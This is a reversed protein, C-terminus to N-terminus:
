PKYNLTKPNRFETQGYLSFGRNLKAGGDRTLPRWLFTADGPISKTFFASFPVTMYIGKDFSGEGFDEASVNTRTAFAGMRVGNNFERSFDLTVGKDGALYQGVSVTALIDEFGTDVYATVHGTNVEYDQLEFDQEFARQRVKNVDVGLAFWGNMPHYLYEGGVGAFMQELLGGYVGYYHGDALKGMHKLAMNPITFDSTVAYERLNTRVQPLRSDGRQQFKEFNDVLRYALRGEFWTNKTFNIRTDNALLFQYLFGDAGGLVQRYGLATKNTFRELPEEHVAQYPFNYGEIAVQEQAQDNLGYETRRTVFKDRDVVHQGVDVGNNEYNMTFWKINEPLDQHLVESVRDLSETYYASDGNRVNLKVESGRQEVERVQWDTQQQVRQLTQKWDVQAPRPGTTVPLPKPDSLKPTNFTSFNEFLSIAVSFTNGRELGLHFNISDSFQYVVGYNVRSSQEQPNALPENQYNNGEYELKLILDDWPTHWQVGGFLSTRGRFYTDAALEGGVGFDTVPRNDFKSSVVGLPNAFDGTNGMYGWGLGLSADFNGFRKSAVLYESAFLATGGVDNIGLAVEPIYASEKWLRLKADINKDLYKQDGSFEEPGFLRNTIKTYRFGGELWDFPQLMISYRSYPEVRSATFSASGAARMRATPTQMLGVWGWTSSSVPLDRLPAALVVDAAEAKLGPLQAAGQTALFDALQQATETSLAGGRSPALLWAGPMPVIQVQSNWVGINLEHVQGTPQVLWVTDVQKNPQWGEAQEACQDVYAPAELGPVYDIACPGTDNVVVLSAPLAPVVITDAPQLRPDLQPNLALYDADVNSLVLRGTAPLSEVFRAYAYAQRSALGDAQVDTQKQVHMSLSTLLQTRALSQQQQLEARQLVLGPLYTANNNVVSPLLGNRRLYVSLREGAQLPAAPAQTAAVSPNAQQEAQPDAQQENLLAAQTPLTASCFAALVALHILSLKM